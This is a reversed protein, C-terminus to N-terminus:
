GILSSRNGRDYGSRNGYRSRVWSGRPPFATSENMAALNKALDLLRDAEKRVSEAKSDSTTLKAAISEALHGQMAQYFSPPWLAVNGGYAPDNSVYAFYVPTQDAYLYGAEDNFEILPVNFRDDQAVAMTRVWDGPKEFVYSRGFNPTIDTDCDLQSTRKAFFWLGRELLELVAGQDWADDLLYRAELQESLSSLRPHSCIRLAGNYLGLKFAGFAEESGTIAAGSSASITLALAM